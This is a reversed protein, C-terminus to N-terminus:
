DQKGKDTPWETGLVYREFWPGYDKKTVLSTIAIADRTSADKMPFSSLLSKFVTFFAQDGLEQRLAHLALPGKAYLLAHHDEARDPGAVAAAGLLVHV